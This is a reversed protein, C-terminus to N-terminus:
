VCNDNWTMQLIKENMNNQVHTILFWTFTSMFSFTSSPEIWASMLSLLRVFHKFMGLALTALFSKTFGKKQKNWSSLNCHFIRCTRSFTEWTVHMLVLTLLRNTTFLTTHSWLRFVLTHLLMGHDINELQGPRMCSGWTGICGQFHAPTDSPGFSESHGLRYCTVLTYLTFLTCNYLLHVFQM